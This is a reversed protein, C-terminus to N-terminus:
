ISAFISVIVTNDIEYLWQKSVCRLTFYYPYPQLFQLINVWIDKPVYESLILFFGENHETAGDVVAKRRGVM